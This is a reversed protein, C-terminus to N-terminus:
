QVRPRPGVEFFPDPNGGNPDVALALQVVVHQLDQECVHALTPLAHAIQIGLHGRHVHALRAHLRDDLLVAGRPHHLGHRFHLIVRFPQRPRGPGGDRVADVCAFIVDILVDVGALRHGHPQLEPDFAIVGDEVERLAVAGCLRRDVAGDGARGRADEDRRGGDQRGHRHVGADHAGNLNLRFATRDDPRLRRHRHGPQRRRAELHHNARDHLREGLRRGLAAHRRGVADEVRDEGAAVLPGLEGGVEDVVDPAEAAPAGGLVLVTGVGHPGGVGASRLVHGALDLLPAVREDPAAILEHRIRAAGPARAAPEAQILQHLERVTRAREGAHAVALHESRGAGKAAAM